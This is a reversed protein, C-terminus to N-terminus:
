NRFHVSKRSHRAHKPYILAFTKYGNNFTEVVCTRLFGKIDTLLIEGQVRDNLIKGLEHEPNVFTFDLQDGFEAAFSTSPICYVVYYSVLGDPHERLTQTLVMLICPRHNREVFRRITSHFSAGYINSLHLGTALSLEFDKAETEFRECQFLIDAAGYNAEAEFMNKCEPSLTIEDEQTRVIRQWGLIHHTVEHFLVFPRRSYHIHPDIYIIESRRDLLGLVKSLAKHFFRLAKQALTAEYAALDLEGTLVLQTCALINEKPTPLQERIDAARLLRKVETTIDQASKPTAIRAPPRRM